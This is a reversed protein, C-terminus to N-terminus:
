LRFYATRAPRQLTCGRTLLGAAVAVGILITLVGGVSFHAAALCREARDVVALPAPNLAMGLHSEVKQENAKTRRPARDIRPPRREPM